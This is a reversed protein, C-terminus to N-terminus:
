TRVKNPPPLSSPVEPLADVQVWIEDNEVRVPYIRLPRSSWGSSIHGDILDFSAAQHPCVLRGESVHGLSLDAQEHPCARECAIARDEHWILILAIKSALACIMTQDKLRDLTCAYVWAPEHRPATKGPEDVSIPRAYM